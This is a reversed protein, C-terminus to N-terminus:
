KVGPLTPQLQVNISSCSAARPQRPAWAHGFVVEYSAPLVGNARYQEYAGIMAKLKNRGTLAHPRHYAANHAGLAKLERMLQYVDPYTLTYREVDMVPDAFGSYLLADGVDHMDLFRHVHVNADVSHWSHRLEKLTDPGFSSFLLMGDPKLVRQFEAFTGALDECWQLTLNSFLMDVSNDALPLTEADACLYSQRRSFLKERWNRKQRAHQLMAPALDLLIINAKPYRESLATACFGTGAGVDLITAPQMRIDDLRELMNNGVERQLVAAKDYHQAARNFSARVLHKDIQKDLMDTPM